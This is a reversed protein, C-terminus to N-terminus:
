GQNVFEALERAKQHIEATTPMVPKRLDIRELVTSTDSIRGDRIAETAVSHLEEWSSQQEYYPQLCLDRAMELIQFRLEYPTKSM